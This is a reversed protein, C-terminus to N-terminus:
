EGQKFAAIVGVWDQGTTTSTATAAYTGTSPVIMYGFVSDYTDENDILTFGPMVNTMSGTANAMHGILVDNNNTTTITGSTMSTGSSDTVGTANGGDLPSVTAVNKFSVVHFNWGWTSQSGTQTITVKIAHTGASANPEYFLQETETGESATVLTTGATLSQSSTNDYVAITSYDGVEVLAVICAGASVNYINETLTLSPPSGQSYYFIMNNDYVIGTTAVASNNVTSGSPLPLPWGSITQLYYGSGDVLGTANSCSITGTEGSQIAKSVSYVLTSSGSGSVYTMTQTGAYITSLTWGTTTGSVSESFSLTIQNGASNITASILVPGAYAARFAACATIWAPVMDWPYVTYAVPITGKLSYTGTSSVTKYSMWGGVGASVLSTWGSMVSGSTVDNFLTPNVDLYGVILDNPNSTTIPRSEIYGWGGNLASSVDLPANPDVGKFSSAGIYTFSLGSAGSVTLTLTHSGSSANAEYFLQMPANNDDYRILTTAPLLTISGDTVALTSATGSERAEVAVVICAGSSVGTITKSLTTSTTGTAEGFNGDSIISASLAKEASRNGGGGGGGGCSTLLIVITLVVISRIIILFKATGV